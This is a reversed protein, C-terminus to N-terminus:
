LESELKRIAQEAAPLFIESVIMEHEGHHFYRRRGWLEHEVSQDLSEALHALRSCTEFSAVEIRGPIFHDQSFLLEGLPRTGLGLFGSPARGNVKRPDLNQCVGLPNLRPLTVSRPDM